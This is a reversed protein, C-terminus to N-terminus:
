ADRRRRVVLAAGAALLLAAAGAIVPLSGDAGTAALGPKPSESPKPSEIPKPSESPKPEETTPIPTPAPKEVTTVTEDDTAKPAEKSTAEAVNDIKGADLDAEVVTYEATCTLSEGPALVVPADLDCSLASLEGAGTFSEELDVISVETLEVKSSDNTAVFTYTVTDGVKLGEVNDATKELSLLGSCVEVDVSADGGTSLMATNTVTSCQGAEPLEDATFEHTYVFEHTKGAESWVLTKDGELAEFEAFTDSVTTEKVKEDLKWDAAAFTAVFTSDETADAWKVTATNTGDYKPQEPITCTYDFVKSGGAPIVADVGDAVTCEAGGGIDTTDTVTVTADKYDNPNVVTIQGTMSWDDDSADGETVTVTYDAKATGTVPDVVVSSSDAKKDIEWAYTRELDLVVNKSTELDAQNCVKADATATQETEVITATNTYQECKGADATHTVSYDYSKEGDEAKAKVTGHAAAFEAFTDTVTVEANAGPKVAANAFDVAAENSTATGTVGYPDTWSLTATNTTPAVEAATCALDIDKSENAALDFTKDDGEVTCNEDALEVGAIPFANPNTVTLSTTYIGDRKEGETPTVTVTYAFETGSAAPSDVTGDPDVTKDIEWTWDQTYALDTVAKEILLDEVVPRNVFTCKAPLEDHTAVEEGTFKITTGDAVAGAGTCSSSKLEWGDVANEVVTVDQNPVLVDHAGTTAAADAAPALSFDGNWFTEVGDLNEMVSSATFGFEPITGTFGEPLEVQKEVELTRVQTLQACMSATTTAREKTYWENMYNGAACAADSAAFGAVVMRYPKTGGQGDAIYVVTEPSQVTIKTFDDVDGPTNPTEHMYWPFAFVAPNGAENLLASTRVQIEGRFHSDNVTVPNNYHTISGLSAVGGLPLDGGPGPKFGIASQTRTDLASPCGRNQGHATLAEGGAGVWGSSTATDAPGYTICNGVATGGTTDTANPYGLHDTMRAEVTGVDVALAAGAGTLTLPAAVLGAAAVGAALNRWRARAGARPKTSEIM